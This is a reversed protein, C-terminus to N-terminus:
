LLLFFSGKTTGCQLSQILHYFWDKMGHYQCECVMTNILMTSNLTNGFIGHHLTWLFRYAVKKYTINYETMKTFILGTSEIQNM